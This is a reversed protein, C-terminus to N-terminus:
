KEARLFQRWQALMDDRQSESIAAKGLWVSLIIQAAMPDQVRGLPEGNLALGLGTDMQWDLSYQDGKEVPKFLGCFRDIEEDFPALMQASFAEELSDRTMDRFREASVGVGYEIVLRKAYHPDLIDWSAPPSQAADVQLETYTLRKWLLKYEAAAATQWEAQVLCPVALLILTAVSVRWRM